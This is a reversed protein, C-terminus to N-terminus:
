WRYDDDPEIEMDDIRDKYFDFLQSQLPLPLKVKGKKTTLYADELTREDDGEPPYGLNDPGGYMSGPDNYGVSRFDIILEAELILGSCMINYLLPVENDLTDWVTGDDICFFIETSFTESQDWTTKM